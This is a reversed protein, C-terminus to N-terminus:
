SLLAVAIALDYTSGRKRLDAPALNLVVRRPPLEYGSNVLAARVRVRSERVAAEPLGVIEFGPLGKVLHVEVDVGSAEVGVVCGARAKALM